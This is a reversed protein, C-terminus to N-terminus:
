CHCAPISGSLIWSSGRLVYGSGLISRVEAQGACAAKLEMVDAQLLLGEVLSEIGEGDKASVECVLATGPYQFIFFFHHFFVLLPSVSFCSYVVHIVISRTREVDNGRGIFGTPEGGYEEPVLGLTLLQGLVRSKAATREAGAPIRDVKNLAVIVNCRAALAM